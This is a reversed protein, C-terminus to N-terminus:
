TTTRQERAKADLYFVAGAANVFVAIETLAVLRVVAAANIQHIAIGIAALVYSFLIGVLVIAWMGFGFLLSRVAISRRFCAKWANRLAGFVGFEGLAAASFACAGWPIWAIALAFTALCVVVVYVMAASDSFTAQNTTVDWIVIWIFYTAAVTFIGGAVGGVSLLLVGVAHPWRWFARRISSSLSPRDGNVIGATSVVLMAGALTFIVLGLAMLWWANADLRYAPNLLNLNTSRGPHAIASGIAGFVKGSSSREVWSLLLSYPLLFAGFCFTLSLFNRFLVSIARDFIEGISLLRAGQPVDM